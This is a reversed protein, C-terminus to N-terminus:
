PSQLRMHKEFGDPIWSAAYAVLKSLGTQRDIHSAAIRYTATANKVKGEVNHLINANEVPIPFVSTYKGVLYM